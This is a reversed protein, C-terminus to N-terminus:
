RVTRPTAFTSTKRSGYASSSRQYMNGPPAIPRISPRASMPNGHCQAAPNVKLFPRPPEPQQPRPSYHGEAIRSSTRVEAPTFQRHIASSPRPSAGSDYGRYSEQFRGPTVPVEANHQPQHVTCRSADADSARASFGAGRGHIQGRNRNMFTDRGDGSPTLHYSQLSPSTMTAKFVLSLRRRRQKESDETTAAAGVLSCLYGGGHVRGM